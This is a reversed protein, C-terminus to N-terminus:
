KGVQRKSKEESALPKKKRKNPKPISKDVMVTPIIQKEEARPKPNIKNKMDQLKQEEEHVPIGQSKMDNIMIEYENLLKIAATKTQRKSINVIIIVIFIIFILALLMIGFLFTNDSMGMALTVSDENSKTGEGVSNIASVKYFYTHNKTVNLDIYTRVNGVTRLLTESGSSNGRYINYGTIPSGGDFNPVSWSLKIRNNDIITVQLNQPAAPPSSAGPTGSIDITETGSKTIAPSSSDTVTLTATFTGSFSYTHSPSSLTSTGGDGFSWSYTYPAVGGNVTSTFSITVPAVGSTPSGNVTVSLSTPSPSSVSITTTASKTKPLSSSDTVTLTATFTGSTSYTHPPSSLTSTGGDGFSWSYTYPTVGGSVTPTFSVIVPAVGSTPTGIITVTLPVETISLSYSESDTAGDNDTVTLKVTFTGGSSYKHSPNTVSSTHGDGFNWLWSGITGDPDSSSDTFSVTDSTTITIPTWSFAAIPVKTNITVLCTDTSIQGLSDTIKLKATYVGKLSYTHSALKTAVDWVGDNEFDWQYSEISSGTSASSLSGDFSVVEGKYATKDTGASATPSAYNDSISFWVAADNTGTGSDFAGSTKLYSGDIQTTDGSLTNTILNYWSGYSGYYFGPPIPPTIDDAGDQTYDDSTIDALDDGTAGGDNECLTIAIFVSTISISFTHTVDVTWDDAEDHTPSTKWIWTTDQKVGVHYYWDAQSGTDIEDIQLIRHIKISLTPLTAAKVTTPIITILLTLIVLSIIFICLIKKGVVLESETRKM